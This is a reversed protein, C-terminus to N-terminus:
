HQATSSGTDGADTNGNTDGTSNSGAASIAGRSNGAKHRRGSGGQTVGVATGKGILATKFPRMNGKPQPLGVFANGPMLGRREAQRREYRTEIDRPPKKAAM